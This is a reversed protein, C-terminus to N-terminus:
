RRGRGLSRWPHDDWYDRGYERDRFDRDHMERMHRMDRDDRPDHHPRVDRPDRDEFRPEGRDRFNFDREREYGRGMYPDRPMEYGDRPFTGGYFTDNEAYRRGRDREAQERDVRPGYEHPRDHGGRGHYEDRPNREYQWPDNWDHRDRRM